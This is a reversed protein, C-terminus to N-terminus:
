FTEATCARGPEDTTNASVPVDGENSSDDSVAACSSVHRDACGLVTATPIEREHIEVDVCGSEGRGTASM